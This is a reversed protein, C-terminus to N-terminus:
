EDDREISIKWYTVPIINCKGFKDSERKVNKNWDKEDVLYYDRYIKGNYERETFSFYSTIIRYNLNVGCFHMMLIRDLYNRNGNNYYTKGNYAIDVLIEKWKNFKEQGIIKCYDILIDERKKIIYEEEDTQVEEVGSLYQCIIHNRILTERHSIFTKSDLSNLYSIYKDIFYTHISCLICERCMHNFKDEKERKLEEETFEGTSRYLQMRENSKIDVDKEKDKLKNKDKNANNVNNRNMRSLFIANAIKKEKATLNLFQESDIQNYRYYYINISPLIEERKNYHCKLRNYNYLQLLVSRDICNFLIEEGPRFKQIISICTLRIKESERVCIFSENM